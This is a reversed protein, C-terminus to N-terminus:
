SSAALKVPSRAVSLRGEPVPRACQDPVPLPPRAIGLQTHVCATLPRQRVPVSSIQSGLQCAYQFRACHRLSDSGTGFVLEWFGFNLFGFNRRTQGLRFNGVIQARSEAGGVPAAPDLVSSLKVAQGDGTMKPREVSRLQLFLGGYLPTRDLHQSRRSAIRSTAPGIPIYEWKKFSFRSGEGARLLSLKFISHYPKAEDKPQRRDLSPPKHARAPSRMPSPSSPASAVSGVHALPPQEAVRAFPQRKRHQASRVRAPGYWLVLRGAM